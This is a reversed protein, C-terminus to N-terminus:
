PPSPRTPRMVEGCTWSGYGCGLSRAAAEVEKVMVATFTNGPNALVAVRSAKPVAEKLLQLQRAVLEPGVLSLGTVNGGPHAISAM